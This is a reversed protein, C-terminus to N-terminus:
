KKCRKILGLFLRMERSKWGGCPAYRLKVSLVESIRYTAICMRWIQVLSSNITIAGFM